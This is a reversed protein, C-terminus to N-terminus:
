RNLLGTEGKGCVQSGVIPAGLSIRVHQTQIRESNGRWHVGQGGTTRWTGLFHHAFVRMGRFTSATSAREHMM